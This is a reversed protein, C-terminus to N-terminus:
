DRICSPWTRRRAFCSRPPGNARNPSGTIPSARKTVGTLCSRIPAHRWATWCRRGTPTRNSTWCNSPENGTTSPWWCTTRAAIAWAERQLQRYLWQRGNLGIRMTFPFWRQLRVYCLGLHEHLFYHYFHQCRAPEAVLDIHDGHNKRVRYTRCGEVCSLIAIRGNTLGRQSAIALATAEKDTNPSNLYHGRDGDAAALAETQQTLTNTLQRTHQAYDKFLLGHQYLYSQAGRAKCLLRSAGRFRRRDFGRLVALVVAGFRSLFTKVLTSRPDLPNNLLM